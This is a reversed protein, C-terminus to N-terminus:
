NAILEKESLVISGHGIDIAAIKKTLAGIMEEPTKFHKTEIRTGLLLVDERTIPIIDEGPGTLIEIARHFFGAIQKETIEPLLILILGNDLVSSNDGVRISKKIRYDLNDMLKEVYQVGSTNLVNQYPLYKLAAVSFHSNYRAAREMELFLQQRFAALGGFQKWYFRYFAGRKALLEEFRGKEVFRGEDLVMIEDAMKITSLRHAIVLVTKTLKLNGIVEQIHFESEPDLASTAEDFVIIEPDKLLTRAIAIRQRQGGSLLSGSAGVKTEFGESFKMIFDYAAALKAAEIAQEKTKDPNGYLINELISGEFLAYEQEILGVRNRLSKIRVESINQGDILIAGQTADFFRFLLNALTTKGGGSGGVIATLSAPTFEVNIDHLIEEEPLYSFSLHDTKILGQEIELDKDGRELASESPYDLVEKLRWMSVQSTKWSTALNAITEIPEGLQELYLMIAVIEGITLRGQVVQYGLYWMIAITWIQITISNTFTRLISLTKEKVQVQYRRKILKGFSLTESSERGFAKVTKIGAIREQARTYIDSDADISEQEVYQLRKAYFKTELAYLPIALLALLTITPNIRFAIYLIIFFRGGDILITPLMNMIIAITNAVDDTLRVLLDGQTKEQHFKLPLCQIAYFINSTLKATAEQDIYTLLYDAVVSLFFYLFYTVVIAIITVNLLTLNHFQYAYDFLVKSFMPNLLGLIIVFVDFFIAILFFSFFPLLYAHFKKLLGLSNM